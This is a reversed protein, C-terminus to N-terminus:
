TNSQEVTGFCIRSLFYFPISFVVYRPAEHDTNRMLYQEATWFSPSTVPHTHPV